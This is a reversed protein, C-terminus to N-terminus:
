CEGLPCGHVSEFTVEYTCLNETEVAERTPTVSQSPACYLNVTFTRSHNSSCLVGNKNGYILQVGLAGNQLDAYTHIHQAHTFWIM